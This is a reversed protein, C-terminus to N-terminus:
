AVDMLMISVNPLFTPYACGGVWGVDAVGMRIGIYQLGASQQPAQVGNDMRQTKWSLLFFTPSGTALDKVCIGSKNNTM